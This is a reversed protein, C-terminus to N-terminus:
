QGDTACYRTHKIGREVVVVKVEAAANGYDARSLLDALTRGPVDPKILFVTASTVASRDTLDVKRTM